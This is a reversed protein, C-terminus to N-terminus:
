RGLSPEFRGVAGAPSALPGNFSLGSAGPLSRRRIGDGARLPSPNTHLGPHNPNTASVPTWPPRSSGADTSPMPAKSRFRRRQAARMAEVQEIAAAHRAALVARKQQMALRRAEVVEAHRAAIEAKKQFRKAIEAEDTSPLPSARKSGPLLDSMRLPDRISNFM